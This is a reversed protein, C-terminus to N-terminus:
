DGKKRFVQAGIAGFLGEFDEYGRDIFHPNFVRSAGEARMAALCLGAGGRLDRAFMDGGRLKGGRIIARNNEVAIDAGLRSMDGAHAFRNEFVTERILSVGDAFCKCACIQPQMDTPFLPFPGTTIDGARVRGDSRIRLCTNYDDITCGEGELAFAVSSVDRKDIGEITVDGGCLAVGCLVTGCVIRDGVPMIRAGGLREVGEIEIVSSGEGRIHAGMARLACVLAVVEPERACNILRTVGRATVACMLLNETAGVSPYKMVIDAGSLSKAFCRILGNECETRAGMKRLGDLHIDMPRAGIDCGGPMPMCVEGVTALMAGLLFMSSRMVGFLGDNAKVDMLRGAIRVERGNRSVRVGLESLLELMHDVDSIFPCDSVVVEEETLTAAVLIPLVANKAGHLRVNGFLERGGEIYIYEGDREFRSNSLFDM